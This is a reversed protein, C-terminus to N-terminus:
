PTDAIFEEKLEKLLRQYIREEADEVLKKIKDSECVRVTISDVTERIVSSDIEAKIGAMKEYLEDKVIGYFFKGLHRAADNIVIGKYCDCKRFEECKPPSTRNGEAREKYYNLWSESTRLGTGSCNACLGAGVIPMDNSQDKMKAM